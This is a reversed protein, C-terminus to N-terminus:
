LTFLFWSQSWCQVRHFVLLFKQICLSFKSSLDFNGFCFKFFLYSKITQVKTKPVVGLGLKTDVLSAAAESLYGQNPLLCGRGFCCPCCLQPSPFSLHLAHSFRNCRLHKHQKQKCLYIAGSMSGQSFIQDMQPELSRLAGGIKTQLSWHNEACVWVPFM